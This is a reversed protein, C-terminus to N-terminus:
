TFPLATRKRIVSSGAKRANLPRQLKIHAPIAGQHIVTVALQLASRATLLFSISHIAIDIFSFEKFSLPSSSHRWM